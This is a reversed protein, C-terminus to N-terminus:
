IKLDEPNIYAASRKTQLGLLRLAKQAWTRSRGCLAGLEQQSYQRHHRRLIREQWDQITINPLSASDSEPFRAVAADEVGIGSGGVAPPLSRVKM